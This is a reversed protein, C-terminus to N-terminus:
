ADRGVLTEPSVVPLKAEKYDRINRTIIADVYGSEACYYQIADELDTFGSQMANRIIKQNVPLIGIFTNLEKLAQIVRKHSGYKRLIYYLNSISQSSTYGSIEKRDIRNFLLSASESFPKRDTLFDIIVDTDLFVRTM